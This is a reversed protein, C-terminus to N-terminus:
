NLFGFMKSRSNPSNLALKNIMEPHLKGKVYIMANDDGGVLIVMERITFDDDMIGMITIDNGPESVRLLEEYNGKSLMAYFEEHFNVKRNLEPNEITLIKVKSVGQLLERQEEPISSIKSALSILFGPVTISTVGDRASYKAFAMAVPKENHCSAFLLILGILLISFHKM